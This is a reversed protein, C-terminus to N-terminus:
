TFVCIRMERSFNKQLLLLETFFIQEGKISNDYLWGEKENSKKEDYLFIIYLSFKRVKLNLAWTCGKVM